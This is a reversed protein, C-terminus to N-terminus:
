GMQWLALSLCSNANVYEGVSLKCDGILRVVHRLGKPPLWLVWLSGMCVRPSSAFEVCFSGRGSPPNMERFKKSRPLLAMVGAHQGVHSLINVYVSILSSTM